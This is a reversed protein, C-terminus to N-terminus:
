VEKRPRGLRKPEEVVGSEEFVPASAAVAVDVKKAQTFPKVDVGANKYAEAVGEHDTVVADCRETEGQWFEVVRVSATDKGTRLSVALEQGKFQDKVTTYILTRM